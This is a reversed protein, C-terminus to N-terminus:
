FRIGFNVNKDAARVFEISFFVPVSM